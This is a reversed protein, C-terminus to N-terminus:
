VRKITPYHEALFKTRLYKYINRLSGDRLAIDLTQMELPTLKLPPYAIEDNVTSKLQYCKNKVDRIVQSYRPTEEIADLHGKVYRSCWDDLQPLVQAEILKAITEETNM